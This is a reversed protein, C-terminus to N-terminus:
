DEPELDWGQGDDTGDRFGGLGSGSTCVVHGDHLSCVSLEPTVYRNLAIVNIIRPCAITERRASYFQDVATYTDIGAVHIHDPSVGSQILTLENALWLDIHLGGRMSRPASASEGPRAAADSPVQGEDHLILSLDFGAAGFADAVERGVQFSDPGIGPGIVAVVEAPDTGYCSSMAALAKAPIRALTGRWGAHVAAIAHHVPDHLLVPICDATRAGIAVGPVDTILADVGVISPPISRGPDTEVTGWCPGPVSTGGLGFVEAMLSDGDLFVRAVKDGHVQHAQIVPFPLVEGKETSFAEVGHGMDYRYLGM